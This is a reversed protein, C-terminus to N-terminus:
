VFLRSKVYFDFKQDWKLEIANRLDSEIHEIPKKFDVRLTIRTGNGEM